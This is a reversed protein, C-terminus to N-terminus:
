YYKLICNLRHKKNEHNPLKVINVKSNCKHSTLFILKLNLVDDLCTRSEVNSLKDLLLNFKNCFCMLSDNCDNHADHVSYPHKGFILTFYFMYIFGYAKTVYKHWDIADEILFVYIRKILLPLSSFFM